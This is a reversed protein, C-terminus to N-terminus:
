GPPEATDRRHRWRHIRDRLTQTRLRAEAILANWEQRIEDDPPREGRKIRDLEDSVERGVAAGTVIVVMLIFLASIMALVAGIVGYRTAYSSFLRPLYVAACTLCIAVLVSVLIGFPLLQRWSLRRATLIWGSWVFFVVSAPLMTANAVIQVRGHDLLSHVWWSLGFYVLLGVIWTVDNITNRVSLPKLDWAQEFMRQVGRSFSLAAVTLLFVGILSVDTTTGGTPALVERVADAGAGTLRYRSIIQDAVRHADGKNLVSGLLIAIPILATLASSALAIARDFGVMRQFRTLARLVFAPRLWFTLQRRIRHRDFRTEASV